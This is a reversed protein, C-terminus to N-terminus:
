ATTPDFRLETVRQGHSRVCIIRIMRRKTKRRYLILTISKDVEYSCLIAMKYLAMTFELKNHLIINVIQCGSSCPVDM